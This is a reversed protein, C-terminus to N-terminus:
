AYVSKLVKEAYYPTTFEELWMTAKYKDVFHFRECHIVEKPKKYETIDINLTLGDWKLVVTGGECYEGINHTKKRM